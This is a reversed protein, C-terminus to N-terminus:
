KSSQQDSDVDHNVRTGSEAPLEGSILHIDRQPFPIVIGAEKFAEAISFNIASLV